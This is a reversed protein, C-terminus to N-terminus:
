YLFKSIDYPVVRVGTGGYVTGLRLRLSQMQLAIEGPDGGVLPSLYVYDPRIRRLIVMTDTLHVDRFGAGGVGVLVTVAVSVGALRLRDASRILDECSGPKKLANRLPVHGTELGLTVREVGLTRLDDGSKSRHLLGDGFAHIPKGPIERRVSEVMPLLLDTRIGMANGDGLFVSRRREVDPGLLDLVARLHDDFDTRVRYRRDAYLTCFTCTRVPCGVAAQLYIADYDDPPLIPISGYLERFKRATERRDELTRFPVADPAHRRAFDYIQEVRFESEEVPLIRGNELVRGDIGCRYLRGDHAAYLLRGTRDFVSVDRGKMLVTCHRKANILM